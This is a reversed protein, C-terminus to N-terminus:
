LWPGASQASTNRTGPPATQWAPVPPGAKGEEVESTMM